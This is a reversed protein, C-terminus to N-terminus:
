PSSRLSPMSTPCRSDSFVQLRDPQGEAQELEQRIMHSLLEPDGTRLKDAESGIKAAYAAAGEDDGRPNLAAALARLPERGPRLSLVNWFGDRERKLAPVLGAYVAFIQRQRIPRGGDRIPARPSASWSVLQATQTMRWGASTQGGRVAKLLHELEDPADSV